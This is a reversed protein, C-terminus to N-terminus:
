KIRVQNMKIFALTIRLNTQVKAPIPPCVQTQAELSRDGGAAGQRVKYVMRKEPSKDDPGSKKKM